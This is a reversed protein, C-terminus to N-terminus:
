FVYQYLYSMTIPRLLRDVNISLLIREWSTKPGRRSKIIKKSDAIFQKLKAPTDIDYCNLFHNCYLLAKRRIKESYNKRRSIGLLAKGLRETDIEKLQLYRVASKSIFKALDFSSLDGLTRIGTRKAVECASKIRWEIRLCPEKIHKSIRPYVVLAIKKGEHYVTVDGFLGNMIKSCEGTSDISHYKSTYKKILVANLKKHELLVETETEFFVDKAMEIQSIKYNGLLNDDILEFFKFTPAVITLSACFCMYGQDVKRRCINFSHCEHRLIEVPLIKNLLEPKVSSLIHIKDYSCHTGTSPSIMPAGVEKIEDM